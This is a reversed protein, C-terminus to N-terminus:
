SALPWHFLLISPGKVIYEPREMGMTRRRSKRRRRQSYSTLNEVEPGNDQSIHPTRSHAESESVDPASSHSNDESDQVTRVSPM